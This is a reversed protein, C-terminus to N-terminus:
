VNFYENGRVTVDPSKIVNGSDHVKAECFYTKGGDNLKLQEIDYTVEFRKDSTARIRQTSDKWVLDHRSKGSTLCYLKVAMTEFGDAIQTVTAFQVDGSRVAMSENQSDYVNVSLKSTVVLSFKEKASYSISNIRNTATCFYDGGATLTVQGLTLNRGASTRGLTYMESVESTLVSGNRTWNVQPRPFGIAVCNVPDTSDYAIVNKTDESVEVISPRVSYMLLMILQRNCKM